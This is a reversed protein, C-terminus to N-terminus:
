VEKGEGKKLPSMNEKIKIEHGQAQWDKIESYSIRHGNTKLRDEIENTPTTILKLITEIEVEQLWNARVEGIGKIDTLKEPLLLKTKMIEENFSLM